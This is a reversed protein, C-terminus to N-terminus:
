PDIESTIRGRQTAFVLITRRILFPEVSGYERNKGFTPNGYFSGVASGCALLSRVSTVIM